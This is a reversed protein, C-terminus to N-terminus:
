AVGEVEAAPAPEMRQEPFLTRVVAATEGTAEALHRLAPARVLRLLNLAHQAFVRSVPRSTREISLRSVSAVHSRSLAKLQSSVPAFMATANKVAARAPIIPDWVGTGPSVSILEAADGGEANDPQGNSLWQRIEPLSERHEKLRRDFMNIVVGAIAAPHEWAECFEAVFQQQLVLGEKPLTEAVTPIVVWGAALLAMQVLDGTTPQCDMLVLDFEGAETVGKMARRLRREAAPQDRSAGVAQLIPSSPVVALQGGPILAGGQEYPLRVDPQWQDAALVIVDTIAVSSTGSLVESLTPDPPAYTGTEPDEGGAWPMAGMMRTLNQSPDVDVVLVRAGLRVAEAATQATYTSKGVGGKQAQVAVARRIDPDGVIGPAAPASM